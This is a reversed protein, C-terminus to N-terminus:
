EDIDEKMFVFGAFGDAECQDKIENLYVHLPEGPAALENLPIDSKVAVLLAQEHEDHKLNCDPYECSPRGLKKELSEIAAESLMGGFHDAAHAVHKSGIMFLHPVGITDKIYFLETSPYDKIKDNM